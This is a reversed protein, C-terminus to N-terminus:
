PSTKLQKWLIKWVTECTSLGIFLSLYCLGFFGITMVVVVLNHVLSLLHRVLVVLEEFFGIWYRNIKLSL